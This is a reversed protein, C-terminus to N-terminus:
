LTTRSGSQTVRDPELAVRGPHFILVPCSGPDAHHDAGTLEHVGFDDVDIIVPVRNGGLAPKGAGEGMTTVGDIVLPCVLLYAERRAAEPTKAPARATDSPRAGRRASM